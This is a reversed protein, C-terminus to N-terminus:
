RNGHPEPQSDHGGTGIGIGRESRVGRLHGGARRNSGGVRRVASLASGTKRDGDGPGAKVLPGTGGPFPVSRGVGLDRDDRRLEDTRGLQDGRDVDRGVGVQREVVDGNGGGKAALADPGLLEFHRRGEGNRPRLGGEAGVLPALKSPPDPRRSCEIPAISGTEDRNAGGAAREVDTLISQGESAEGADAALACEHLHVDVPGPVEGNQGPVRGPGGVGRGPRNGRIGGGASGHDDAAQFRIERAAAIETLGLSPGPQPKSTRASPGADFQRRGAPRGVAREKVDVRAPHRDARDTTPSGDPRRVASAAPGM